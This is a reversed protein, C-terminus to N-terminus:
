DSSISVNQLVLQLQEVIILAAMRSGKYSPHFGDSDYYDKKVSSDTYIRWAEGVPFLIADTMIAADKYNRIVGDFTHYYNLSPWVMFFGLQCDYRLCLAKFKKGYDILMTRGASQSSPGQQLVVFDYHKRAIMQQVKGDNWHDELGYDSFAMMHTKIRLGKTKAHQEVLKPLNNTYTLSNGIFLIKLKQQKQNQAFLSFATLVLILLLYLHYKMASARSVHSQKPNM